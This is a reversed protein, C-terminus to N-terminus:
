LRFGSAGPEDAILQPILGSAFQWPPRRPNSDRRGSEFKANHSARDCGEECGEDDLDPEARTSTPM